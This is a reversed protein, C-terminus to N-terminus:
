HISLNQGELRFFTKKVFFRQRQLSKRELPVGRFDVKCKHLAAVFPRKEPENNLLPGFIKAAGKKNTDENFQFWGLGDRVQPNFL